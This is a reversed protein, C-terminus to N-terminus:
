GNGIYALNFKQMFHRCLPDSGPHENYVDPGSRTHLFIVRYTSASGSNHIYLSVTSGTPM